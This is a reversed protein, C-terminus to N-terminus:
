QNFAWYRHSEIRSGVDSLFEEYLGLKKLVSECEVKMTIKNFRTFNLTRKELITVDYNKQNLLLASTLGAIGAGVIVVRNNAQSM